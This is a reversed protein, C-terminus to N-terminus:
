KNIRAPRRVKSMRKHVRGMEGLVLCHNHSKACPNQNLKCCRTQEPNEGSERKM